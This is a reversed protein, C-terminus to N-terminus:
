TWRGQRVRRILRCVWLGVWALVAVIGIATFHESM